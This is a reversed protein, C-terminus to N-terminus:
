EGEDEDEGRQELYWVGGKVGIYIDRLNGELAM